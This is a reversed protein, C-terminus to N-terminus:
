AASPPAALPPRGARYSEVSERITDAVGRLYEEEGIYLYAWVRGAAEGFDPSANVGPIWYDEAWRRKDADFERLNGKVEIVLRLEKGDPLNAAAVFDPFYRKIEGDTVYPISWGLRHNRAWRTIEDEDDLAEAVAYEWGSDCHAYNIESKRALGYLKTASVSAPYPRLEGTNRWARSKSAIPVMRVLDSTAGDGGGGVGDTAALDLNRALWEGAAALSELDNGGPWYEGGDRSKGPLLIGRKAFDRAASLIQSFLQAQRVSVQLGGGSAGSREEIRKVVQHKAAAAILYLSHRRTEGRADRSQRGGLRKLEGIIGELVAPNRSPAGIRYREDSEEKASVAAVAGPNARRNYGVINPFDLQLNAHTESRAEVNVTKKAPMPDPKGNPEIYQPFPVGLIQAYEPPFMGDGNLDRSVRRLTRGAVQECLLSSDFKRFGLMHTVTQADWGETLMGVSIVCRVSEGPKGDKGVTNMVRRIVDECKDAAEFEYERVARFRESLERMQKGTEGSAAAGEEIKSHVIITRPTENANENSLLPADAMNEAVYRFMKNANAVTNMVIAMVPTKGLNAKEWLDNTRAYDDYLLRFADKLLQNNNPNAPDFNSREKGPTRSYIDRHRPSTSRPGGRAEDRVPVRPIKVLGAEIADVLSYDSVIWDVPEPNSQAIYTPTASLDTAYLLVGYDRISQLGSFWDTDVPFKNPDGRHCHHSEDNFVLIRESSAGAVRAVVEEITEEQSREEEGSMPNAGGNLVKRANESPKLAASKPKLQHVNVVYVSARAIVDEWFDGPPLLCFQEYESDSASPVLSALLREKVTIGPALCLFRSTFRTDEPNAIRNATQWVILMAMLLTKGAGTAMKHCLREVGNNRDFNIQALRDTIEGDDAEKLYVHSLAADIQAFYLPTERESGDGETERLWFRILERTRFTVGPFGLKRWEEVKERVDNVLELEAWNAGWDAGGGMRLTGRARAGAVPPLNQSRRRGNALDVPKTDQNLVWYRTPPGYPGNIIPQTEHNSLQAANM